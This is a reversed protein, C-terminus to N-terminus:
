QLYGMARLQQRLAGGVVARSGTEEPLARNAVRSQESWEALEASLSDRTEPYARAVNFREEPDEELDYLERNGSDPDYILKWREGLLAKQEGYYILAEGFSTLSTDIAGASVYPALNAGQMEPPNRVGLLGLLTPALDMLRFRGSVVTGAPLRDPFRMILPVHLLEQYLSHGHSVNGHEWFEEGHDSTVVVLARRDLNADKLAELVRGVCHDVFRVEGDYLAELHTKEAATLWLGTRFKQLLGSRYFWRGRYGTDWTQNFPHPPAYPDHPELYHIWLFFASDDRERLWRCALDTLHAGSSYSMTEQIGSFLSRVVRVMMMSSLWYYPPRHSEHYYGTFGQDLGFPEQLWGNSIFAQTHYGASRLVEALTVRAGDLRNRASVVGNVTPYTGTFLSAISPLTWPSQAIVEEFRVGQSALEDTHPTRSRTYGYCSLRDARLTDITLLVLPPGSCGGQVEPIGREIFGGASGAVLIAALSAVVVRGAVHPRPRAWGRRIGWWTAAGLAAGAVLSGLTLLARSGPDAWAAVNRKCWVVLVLSGVGATSIGAVAAAVGVAGLRRVLRGYGVGAALAVGFAVLLAKLWLVVDGVSLVFSLGWTFRLYALSALGVTVSVPLEPGHREWRLIRSLPWLLVAACIGLALANLVSPVVIVFLYDSLYPRALQGPGGATSMLAQLGEAIGVLAGIGAGFLFYRRM